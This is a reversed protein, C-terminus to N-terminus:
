YCQRVVLQSSLLNVQGENTIYSVMKHYTSPVVKMSHLWAKGVICNYPRVDDDVSFLVQQTVLGAQVLLTIDELTTTTVGNFGSLIRGALNLM